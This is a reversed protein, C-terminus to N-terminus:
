DHKAVESAYDFIDLSFECGLESLRSITNASLDYVPSDEYITVSCTIGVYYDPKKSVLKIQEKVPWLLDLVGDVADSISYIREDRCGLSWSVNPIDKRSLLHAHKQKWVETPALGLYSTIIDPEFDWGAVYFKTTLKPADDLDIEEETDLRSM